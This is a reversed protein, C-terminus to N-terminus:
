EPVRESNNEEGERTGDPRVFCVLTVLPWLLRPRWSLTFAVALAAMSIATVWLLAGFNPGDRFLALCLALVLWASGAVRLVLKGSPSPEATKSVARWHRAQALALMAFGLYAALSLAIFLLPSAMM